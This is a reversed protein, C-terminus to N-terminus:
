RETTTTTTTSTIRGRNTLGLDISARGGGAVFAVLGLGIALLHYEFGEGAQKGYWNMFFGFPQHVTFIAGLMVVIISLAALRTFAGLILGVAGLFELVIALAAIPGPIHMQSTFADYTASFGGGGFWGFVKQASHPLIVIGLTLRAIMAALSADTGVIRHM